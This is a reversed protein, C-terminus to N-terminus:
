LLEFSLRVISSIRIAQGDRMVPEFTWQSVADIAAKNFMTAPQSNVVQVEDVFGTESVTFRLEVWGSVDRRKAARPFRPEVVNVPMLDGFSLEPLGDGLLASASESDNPFPNASDTSALAGLDFVSEVGAAPDEEIVSDATDAAPNAVPVDEKNVAETVPTTVPSGQDETTVTAPKETNARVQRNAARQAPVPDNHLELLQEWAMSLRSEAAELGQTEPALERAETLLGHAERLRKNDIERSASRVLESAVRELGAQAANNESDATLVQEFFYRANNGEPRVLQGQQLKTDALRLLHGIRSNGLAADLEGRTATVAATESPLLELASGIYRSADDFRSEGIAIRAKELEAAQEVRALALGLETLRPNNSDAQEVIDLARAAVDIQGGQIADEASDLIDELLSRYESVIEADSAGNALALSYLEVANAGPPSFFQGAQRANRAASLYEYGPGRVVRPTEVAETASPPSSTQPLWQMVNPKVRDWQWATVSVASIVLVFFILKPRSFFGKVVNWFFKAIGALFVLLLRIASRLVNFLWFGGRGVFRASVSIGKAAIGPLKSAVLRQTISLKDAPRMLDVDGNSEFVEDPADFHHKVAAEIALRARGPSVPKLLFRYVRGRNILEMMLDGDDRRGAVISVLRPTVKRLKEILQNVEYSVIAADTIVVGVNNDQNLRVAEDVDAAHRVHHIGRAAERITSLLAEDRTIALIDVNRPVDDPPLEFDLSKPVQFRGTGDSIVSIGSDDTEMVIHEEASEDMDASGDNASDSLTSLRVKRTANDVLKRLLEPNPEDRVVQFVQEAEVIASDATASDGLLLICVTEPSRKSAERLADAGTMGPLDHVSIIVDIPTSGLTSLADIGTTATHVAYRSGFGSSLQDLTKQESHLLLVQTRFHELGL